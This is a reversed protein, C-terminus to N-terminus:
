IIQPCHARFDDPGIDEGLRCAMSFLVRIVSRRLHVTSPSPPSAAVPSLVYARVVEPSVAGLDDIGSVDQIYRALRGIAQGLRRESQETLTYGRKLEVLACEVAAGLSEDVHHSPASTM